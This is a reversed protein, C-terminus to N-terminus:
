ILAKGIKKRGTSSMAASSPTGSFYRKEFIVSLLQGFRVLRMIFFYQFLGMTPKRVRLDPYTLEVKPYLEVPEPAQM